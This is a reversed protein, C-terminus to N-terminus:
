FRRGFRENRGWQERGWQSRGWQDRGWSDRGWLDRAWAQRRDDRSRASTTRSTKRVNSAAGKPKVAEHDPANEAVEARAEDPAFQAGLEGLEDGLPTAPAMTRGTPVQYTVLGLNPWTHPKWLCYLSFGLVAAVTALAFMSLDADDSDPHAM